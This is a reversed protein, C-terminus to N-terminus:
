DHTFGGDHGGSRVSDCRAARVLNRHSQAVLRWIAANVGFILIKAPFILAFKSKSGIELGSGPREREGNRTQVQLRSKM